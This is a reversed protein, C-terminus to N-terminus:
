ERLESAQQRVGILQGPTSYASQVRGRIFATRRHLEAAEATVTAVARRASRDVAYVEALSRRKQNTESV